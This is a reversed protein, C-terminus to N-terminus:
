TRCTADNAIAVGVPLLKFLSQLEALRAQLEANLRRVEAEAQQRQDIETRLRENAAMLDSTRAAVREELTTNLRSLEARSPVHVISQLTPSQWLGPSVAIQAFIGGFNWGAFSLIM